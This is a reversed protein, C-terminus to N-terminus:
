ENKNIYLKKIEIIIEDTSDIDLNFSIVKAELSVDLRRKNIPNNYHRDDLWLILKELQNGKPMEPPLDIYVNEFGYNTGDNITCANDTNRLVRENGFVLFRPRPGGKTINNDKVIKIDEDSLIQKKKIFDDIMGHYITRKNKFPLPNDVVEESCQDTLNLYTGDSLLFSSGKTYSESFIVGLEELKKKISQM